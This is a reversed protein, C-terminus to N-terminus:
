IAHLTEVRVDMPGFETGFVSTEIAFQKKSYWYILSMNMCIMFRIKSRRTAHDSDVFM